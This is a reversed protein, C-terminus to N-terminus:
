FHEVRFVWIGKKADYSVFQAGKLETMRRVKEEYRRGVQPTVEGAGPPRCNLLTVYAPKNLEEGM